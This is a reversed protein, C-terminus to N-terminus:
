LYEVKVEANFVSIGGIIFDGNFSSFGDLFTFNADLAGGDGRILSSDLLEFKLFHPLTRISGDSIDEISSDESFRNDDFVDRSENWSPFLGNDNSSM